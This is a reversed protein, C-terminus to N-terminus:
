YCRGSSLPWSGGPKTVRFIERRHDQALRYGQLGPILRINRTRYYQRADEVHDYYDNLLSAFHCDSLSAM